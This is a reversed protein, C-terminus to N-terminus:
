PTRYLPREVKDFVWHNGGNEGLALSYAGYLLVGRLTMLCKGSTFEEFEVTGADVRRVHGRHGSIPGQYELYAKRHEGIRRAPIPLCRAASPDRLLQWTVLVEGRELMLDWHEGGDIEHHLIVFRSPM